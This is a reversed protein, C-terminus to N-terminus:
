GSIAAKNKLWKIVNESNGAFIRRHHEGISKSMEYLHEEGAVGDVQVFFLKENDHKDCYKKAEQIFSKSEGVQHVSTVSGVPGSYKLFGYAEISPVIADVSRAFKKDKVDKKNQIDGNAVTYEGNKPKDVDLGTYVRLMEIQVDEDLEQRTADRCYDIQLWEDAELYITAMKKIHEFTIAEESPIGRYDIHKAIRSHITNIVSTAHRRTPTDIGKDRCKWVIENKKNHTKEVALSQHAILKWVASDEELNSQNTAQRSAIINDAGNKHETIIKKSVM